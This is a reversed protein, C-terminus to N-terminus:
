TRTVHFAWEAPGALSAIFSAMKNTVTSEIYPQLRHCVSPSNTRVASAILQHEVTAAIPMSAAPTASSASGMRRRRQRTFWISTSFTQCAFGGLAVYTEGPQSDQM